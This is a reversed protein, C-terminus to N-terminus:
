EGLVFQMDIRTSKWGTEDRDVRLVFPFRNLATCLPFDASPYIESKEPDFFHEAGHTKLYEIREAMGTLERGELISKIYEACLVDEPATRV